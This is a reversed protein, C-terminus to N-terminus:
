DDAIFHFHRTESIRIPSAQEFKEIIHLRINDVENLTWRSRDAAQSVNLGRLLLSLIRKEKENLLDVANM